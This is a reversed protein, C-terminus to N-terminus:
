QNTFTFPPSSEGTSMSTTPNMVVVSVQTGVPFTSAMGAKGLKITLRTLTSNGIVFTPDYKPVPLMTGNVFVESSGLMFGLGDITVAKPTTSIASIVPSNIPATQNTLALYADARGSSNVKSALGLVPQATSMIRQKIQAATLGPEHDALLVAIGAVHPSAMSTGADPGYSNGPLTSLVGETLSVNAGGPAAVTVSSHGYESYGALNDNKDVASVSIVTPLTNWAGPYDAQGPVDMDLGPGGESNGAACVFLIGANGAATIADKLGQSPNPGDWSANIVRVNIGLKKQKIAYDIARVANHTSGSAQGSADTGIFKLPMLQVHWAVGTVGLGNNGVAGITGSVHTGHQGDTVPDFVQNNNDIFNWGNIDNPFAKIRGPNPNVWINAQLDQHTIDVGEDTVGVVVNGSGTEIDWARPAEIGALGTDTPTGTGLNLLGWMPGPFGLFDPDNPITDAPRWLYDPEAYEVRPDASLQAVAEEVTTGGNLHLLYLSGVSEANLAEFHSTRAPLLQGAIEDAAFSAIPAQRLKVLVQGEVYQTRGKQPTSKAHAAGRHGPFWCVALALLMLPVIVVRKM